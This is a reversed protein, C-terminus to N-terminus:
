ALNEDGAVVVVRSRGNDLVCCFAAELVAALGERALDGFRDQDGQTHLRSSGRPNGPLLLRCM